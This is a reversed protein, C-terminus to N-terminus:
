HIKVKGSRPKVHQKTELLALDLRSHSIDKEAVRTRTIDNDIKGGPKRLHLSQEEARSAILDLVHKSQQLRTKFHGEELISQLLHTFLAVEVIDDHISM